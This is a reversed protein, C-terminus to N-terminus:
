LKLEFFEFDKVEPCNEYLLTIGDKIDIFDKMWEDIKIKNKEDLIHKDVLNIMFACIFLMGDIIWIGEEGSAFECLIAGHSYESTARYIRYLSKSALKTDTLYESVFKGVYEAKLIQELSPFLFNASSKKSFSEYSFEVLGKSELYPKYDFAQEIFGDKLEFKKLYWLMDYMCTLMQEDSELNALYLLKAYMELLIRLHPLYFKLRKRDEVGLKLMLFNTTEVFSTFYARKASLLVEWKVVEGRGTNNFKNNVSAFSGLQNTMLQLAKIVLNFLDNKIKEENIKYKKKM